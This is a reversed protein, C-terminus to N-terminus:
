KEHPKQTDVPVGVVGIHGQYGGYGSSGQASNSGWKEIDSAEEDENDEVAKVPKVDTPIYDKINSLSVSCIESPVISKKVDKKIIECASDFSKANVFFHCFVVKEKGTRENESIFSVIAKYWNEHFFGIDNEDELLGDVKLKKISSIKHESHGREEFYQQIVAEVGVYAEDEVIIDRKQQVLTGNDTETFFSTKALFYM